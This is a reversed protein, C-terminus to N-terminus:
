KGSIRKLTKNWALQYILWIVVDTMKLYLSRKRNKWELKINVGKPDSDFFRELFMRGYNHNSAYAWYATRFSKTNWLTRFMKRRLTEKNYLSLWVQHMIRETELVDLNPTNITAIHCDYQQWDAPYNNMVIRKQTQLREFLVTGPLPTMIACQYSDISSNRIFDRRAVLDEEKDSEMGFIMFALISIGYRHM